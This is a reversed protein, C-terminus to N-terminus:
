HGGDSETGQPATEVLSLGVLYGLVKGREAELHDGLVAIGVHDHDVGARDGLLGGAARAAGGGSVGPGEDDHSAAERHGLSGLGLCDLPGHDDGVVLFLLKGRHHSAAQIEGTAGFCRRKKLDAGPRRRGKGRALCGAGWASKGCCIASPHSELHLGPAVLEAGEADDRM